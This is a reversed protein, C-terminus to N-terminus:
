SVPRDTAAEVPRRRIATSLRNRRDQYRVKDEVQEWVIEANPDLLVRYSNAPVLGGTAMYATLKKLEPEIDPSRHQSRCLATSTSAASSCPKATSPWRKPICRPQRGDPFSSVLGRRAAAPTRAYGTSTEANDAAAAKADQRLRFAGAAHRKFRALEDAGASEVNSTCRRSPRRRRRRLPRLVAIKVLLEEKLKAIRGRIFEIVSGGGRAAPSPKRTTPSSRGHAWVLNDRLEASQAM